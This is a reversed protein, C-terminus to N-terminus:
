NHSWVILDGTQAGGGAYAVTIVGAATWTALSQVGSGGATQATDDLFTCRYITTIGTTFTDGTGAATVNWVRIRRATYGRNAEEPLTNETVAAM